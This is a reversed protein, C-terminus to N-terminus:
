KWPLPVREEGATEEGTVEKSVPEDPAREDPLEEADDPHTGSLGHMVTPKKESM